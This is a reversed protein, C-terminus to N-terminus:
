DMSGYDVKWLVLGHGPATKGARTRDKAQILEPISGAERTGKGVELLTGVLIRVMNYLFGNGVFRFTCEDGDELIEIRYITRVRDEIESKASSFSTFDHSGIFYQAADRIADMNLKYPYHYQYHRKFVDPLGSRNLFYRYEKGSASFRAHFDLSVEDVGRILIDEPLVTNLAKVWKDEAISLETDFHVVQGRAHVFRDTRGSASVRVEKGKHIRALATELESQVTRMNPQVQYGYFNTGDYSVILKIRHM